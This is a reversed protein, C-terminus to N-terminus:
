DWWGRMRSLLVFLEDWEKQELEHTSHYIETSNYSEFGPQLEFDVEAMSSNKIPKFVIKEAEYRYGCRKSANDYNINKLLVIARLIDDSKQKRSVEEEMGDLIIPYLQRLQFELMELTCSSDWPRMKSVIRFYLFYNKISWKLNDWFDRIQQKWSLLRTLDKIFDPTVQTKM